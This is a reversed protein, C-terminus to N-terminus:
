GVTRMRSAAESGAFARAHNGERATRKASPQDPREHRPRKEASRRIWNRFVSSWDTHADRFQHDRIKALEREVEGATFGEADAVARDAPTPMWNQPCRKTARAKPLEPGRVPEESVTLNSSPEFTTLPSVMEGGGRLPKGVGQDDNEGRPSITEGGMCLTILDSTRSGDTRRREIRTILKREELGRLISLVTRESLCTDKALRAHSPFSRMKDDAYNALVLLMLKESSSVGEVSIALSLAQVSM